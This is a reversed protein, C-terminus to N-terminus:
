EKNVVKVCDRHSIGVASYKKLKDSYTGGELYKKVGEVSQALAEEWTCDFQWSYYDRGSSFVEDWTWKNDNEDFRSTTTLQLSWRNSEDEYLNFSIAVAGKTSMHKLIPNLWKEFEQYQFEKINSELKHSEQAAIGLQWFQDDHVDCGGLILFYLSIAEQRIEVVKEANHLNEKHFYGNRHKDRWDDITKVIHRKVFNSVNFIGSNSEIFANLSGLTTDIREENDTTYEAITNDRTRIKKGQDKSFQIVTFLLQEVSKLYGSVIGTQDLSNTVQNLRYLWESSIFSDAFSADGTMAKYLGRSIYNNYLIEVQSEFIDEPIFDRYPYKCLMDSVSEKFHEIADDTPTIVTNYGILCRARENFENVYDMFASFEEPGFYSDFIDKLTCLRISSGRKEKIQNPVSIIDQYALEDPNYMKVVKVCDVDYKELNKSVYNSRSPFYYGVKRGDEMMVFSFPSFKWPEGRIMKSFKPDVPYTDYPINNEEFLNILLEEVAYVARGENVSVISEYLSYDSDGLDFIPALATKERDYRRSLADKSEKIQKLLSDFTYQYLDSNDMAVEVEISCSEITAERSDLVKQAKIQFADKVDAAIYSADNKIAVLFNAIGPFNIRLIVGKTFAAKDQPHNIYSRILADSIDIITFTGSSITVLRAICRNHRPLFNRQELRNIERISKIDKNKIELLLRKIFYFGHVLCYNIIVPVTQKILHKGIGIETRLDIRVLDNLGEHPIATGNFLKSIWKSFEIREDKYNIMIKKILPLTSAEKLMSLVPGPIGTGIGSSQSSGAMDSVLHFFWNVVGFFVKDEFTNGISDSAPIVLHLLDGNTDTGYGEGTFQTIISCILGFPSTHHSFDRLHHQLTGGLDSTLKDSPNPYKEELYRIADELGDKNYGEHQAVKVVFQNVQTQGWSQANLLSLEGVWFVDMMGTLVGVSAAFLCDWKDAKIVSTDDEAFVSSSYKSSTTQLINGYEVNFTQDQMSSIESEIITEEEKGPLNKTIKDM